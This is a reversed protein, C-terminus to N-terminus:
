DRDDCYTELGRHVDYRPRWGLGRIKHTDAVIADEGGHEGPVTPWEPAPSGTLSAIRRAADALMIGQGSGLNYTGEARHLALALIALALDDVHIYDRIACPHRLSDCGIAMRRGQAFLSSFLRDPHESPGFPFFVRAWSLSFRGARAMEFLGQHLHHKERAYASRPIVPSVDEQLPYRSPAYELCTGLVVFHGTGMAALRPIAALSWRHHNVNLPSELYVGPTAIWATHICVDPRFREVLEWPLHEMDHPRHLGLVSHGSAEAVRMFASGIFGRPGTIFLKM